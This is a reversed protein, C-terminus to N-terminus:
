ETRSMLVPTAGQSPWGAEVTGTSQAEGSAPCDQSPLLSRKPVLAFLQVNVSGKEM